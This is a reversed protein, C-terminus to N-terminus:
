GVRISLGPSISSSKSPLVRDIAPGSDQPEDQGKVLPSPGVPATVSLEGFPVIQMTINIDVTM